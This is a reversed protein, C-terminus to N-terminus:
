KLFLRTLMHGLPVDSVDMMVLSDFSYCGDERIKVALKKSSEVYENLVLIPPFKETLEFEFIFKIMELQKGRSILKTILDAVFLYRPHTPKLLYGISAM